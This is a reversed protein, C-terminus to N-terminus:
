GRRWGKRLPISARYPAPQYPRDRPFDVHIQIPLRAAVGTDAREVRLWGAEVNYLIRVGPIPREESPIEFEAQAQGEPQVYIGRSTQLTGPSVFVFNEAAEGMMVRFVGKRVGSEPGVTIQDEMPRIEFRRVPVESASSPSGNLAM